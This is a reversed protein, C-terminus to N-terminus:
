PPVAVQAAVAGHRVGAEAEAELAQHDVDAPQGVDAVRDGVRPPPELLRGMPATWAATTAAILAVLTITGLGPAASPQWGASWLRGLTAAALPLLFPLTVGVLRSMEAPFPWLAIAPLYLALFLADLERRRLRPWLSPLALTLLLIGGAMATTDVAITPSLGEAWARLQTGLMAQPAELLRSWAAPLTDLYSATFSQSQKYLQWGIAPLAALALAAGSRAMGFGRGHAWLALALLMPAGATRVLCLYGALLAILWLRTTTPRDGHALLLITALLVVFLPESSPEFAWPLQWPLLLALAALIAAAPWSALLKRYWALLLACAVVVLGAQAMLARVPDASGAGVLALFSPYGPPFQSHRFHLLAIGGDGRLADAMYLYSIGDSFAGFYSAPWGFASLLLLLGLLLAFAACSVLPRVGSRWNSV